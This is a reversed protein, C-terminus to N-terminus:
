LTIIDYEVIVIISFIHNSVYQLQIKKFYDIHIWYLNYDQVARDIYMGKKIGKYRWDLKQLWCTATKKSISKKCIGKESFIEQMEPTAVLDVLDEAKLFGKKSKEVMQLMIKSAIDEDSLVTWM